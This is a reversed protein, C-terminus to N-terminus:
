LLWQKWAEDLSLNLKKIAWYAGHELEVPLHCAKEYILRLPSMGIPAKHATRYACLADPLKHAWDKGDPQIIKKLINKAERNSVEVQGNEQSHYSTTVRHHVGYTKLLARFHANNFHSGGDSIIARLCSYRALICRTIFKLVERHDNTRTPITKVWNSMYDVVLLSYEKGNSPPFPRMFDIGWLDFIQLELILQMSIEDRKSINLTAQCQLCETYFRHADKFFSPRYFGSQMIKDVTNCAMFHGGCTSSHCMVLIDRQDEEPICGRASSKTMDSISYSHNKGSTTNSIMSSSIENIVIGISWSRDLWSSTSSTPTGPLTARSPLSISMLFSDVIDEAGPVHLRSLHDAVSNESGKKYKIEFDFEQVLLVWRILRPKAKKKFLLYKLAAHNTYILIKSGLIYPRFKELAYVVALLEKKMTTYNIQAKVITKRAYCIAMPKRELWQGLVAGMAYDSADCM